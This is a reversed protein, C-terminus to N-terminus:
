ARRAANTWRSRSRACSTVGPRSARLAHREHLPHPTAIYIADVGPAALLQALGDSWAAIGFRAAFARAKDSSSGAVNVVECCSHTLAQCFDGAIGGTGVVGWRLPSTM